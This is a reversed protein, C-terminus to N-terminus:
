NTSTPIPITTNKEQISKVGEFSIYGAIGFIIIITIIITQWDKKSLKDLALASFPNQIKQEPVTGYENSQEDGKWFVLYLFILIQLLPILLGICILGNQGTDHMRRVSIWLYIGFSLFIPIMMIGLSIIDKIGLTSQLNINLFRSSITGLIGMLITFLIILSLTSVVYNGRSLRRPFSSTINEM